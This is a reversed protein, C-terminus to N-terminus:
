RELLGWQLEEKEPGTAEESWWIVILPLTAVQSNLMTLGGGEPANRNSSKWDLFPLTKRM